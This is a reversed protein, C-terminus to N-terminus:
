GPGHFSRPKVTKKVKPHYGSSRRRTEVCPPLLPRAMFAEEPRPPPPPESLYGLSDDGFLDEDSIYASPLEFSNRRLNSSPFDHIHTTTIRETMDTATSIQM